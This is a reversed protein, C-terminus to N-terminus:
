IEITQMPVLKSFCAMCCIKLMYLYHPLKKGTSADTKQKITAFEQAVCLRQKKRHDMGAMRSPLMHDVVKLLAM